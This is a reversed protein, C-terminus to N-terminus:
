RTVDSSWNRITSGLIERGNASIATIKPRASAARNWMTGGGIRCRLVPNVNRKAWVTEAEEKGAQAAQGSAAKKGTHKSRRHEPM